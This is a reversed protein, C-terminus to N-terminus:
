NRYPTTIELDEHLALALISINEVWYKYRLIEIFQITLDRVKKCALLFLESDLNKCFM